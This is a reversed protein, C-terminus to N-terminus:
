AHAHRRGKPPNRLPESATAEDADSGSGRDPVPPSSQYPPRRALVQDVSTGGLLDYAIGMLWEAKRADDDSFIRLAVWDKGYPFERALGTRILHDAVVSPLSLHLEGDLHIHGLEEEGRCFDVGDVENRRWLNWHTAAVIGPWSQVVRSLHEFPERLVPPPGVPGKESLKLPM